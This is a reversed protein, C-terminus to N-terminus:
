NEIVIKQVTSGRRGIEIVIEILIEILMEIVIKLAISRRRKRKILGFNWKVTAHLVVLVGGTSAGLQPRLLKGHLALGDVADDDDDDGDDDHFRILCGQRPSLPPTCYM